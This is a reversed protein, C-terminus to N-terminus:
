DEEIDSKVIKARVHIPTISLVPIPTNYPIYVVVEEESSHDYIAGMVSDNVYRGKHLKSDDAHMLYKQVPDLSYPSWLINKAPFQAKVIVFDNELTKDKYLIVGNKEITMTDGGAYQKRYFMKATQMSMTWSQLSKIGTRIEKLDKAQIADEVTMVRYVTMEQQPCISQVAKFARLVPGYRKYNSRSMYWGEFWGKILEFGSKFLFDIEPNETTYRFVNFTKFYEKMTDLKEKQQALANDLVTKMESSSVKGNTKYKELDRYNAMVKHYNAIVKGLRERDGLKHDPRPAESIIELYKMTNNIFYRMPAPRSLRVGRVDAQFAAPPGKVWDARM